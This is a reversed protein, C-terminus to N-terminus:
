RGPWDPRCRSSDGRHRARARARPSGGPVQTFGRQLCSLADGGCANHRRCPKLRCARWFEFIECYERQAARAAADERHEIQGDIALEAGAIDDCQLEFVDRGVAVRDIPCGDTVLFRPLRDPKFQGLLGTLGDVFVQSSAGFLRAFEKLRDSM